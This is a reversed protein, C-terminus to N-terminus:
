QVRNRMADKVASSSVKAGLPSVSIVKFTATMTPKTGKPAYPMEDEGKSMGTQEVEMTLKYKGGVKWKTLEPLDDEDFRIITPYKKHEAAESKKSEKM